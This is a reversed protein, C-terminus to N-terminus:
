TLDSANCMKHICTIHSWKAFRAVEDVLRQCHSPRDSLLLTDDVFATAAIHDGNSHVYGAGSRNLQRLLVNIVITFLTPSINDGQKVGCKLPISATDGFSNRVLIDSEHYLSSILEVDKPHIGMQRLCEWIVDQDVGNYANRWDVFVCYLQRKTRRADEFIHVIKKVQRRCSKKRQGGEQDEEIVNNKAMLKVLRSNIIHSVVKYVTRACCVPRQNRLLCAPQKKELLKVIGNRWESPM